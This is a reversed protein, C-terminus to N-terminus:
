KFTPVGRAIYLALLVITLLILVGAVKPARPEKENLCEFYFHVLLGFLVLDFLVLVFNLM